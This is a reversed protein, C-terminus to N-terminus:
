VVDVHSFFEYSLYKPTGLCSCCLCVDCLQGPPTRATGSVLVPVSM